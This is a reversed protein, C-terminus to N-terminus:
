NAVYSGDMAEYFLRRLEHHGRPNPHICDSFWMTPDEADYFPNSMDSSHPGHGHFAGLTDVVAFGMERGLEMYRESWVDLASVLQPLSLGFFCTAIRAVGDSPDYVNALYISSGDPFRGPDQFFEVMARINALAETLLRGTPDGGGIASQLDNGGITLVVVTHGSAPLTLRSAVADTQGPLNRSRAGGRSVDVVEVEGGTLSELDTSAEDPYTSDDNSVLLAHYVFREGGAGAGASISDGLVVVRSASDPMLGEPVFSQHHTGPAPPAADPPSVGSDPLSGDPALASDPMAMADLIQAPDAGDDGGGAFSFALLLAPFVSRLYM